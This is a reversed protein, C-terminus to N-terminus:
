MSIDWFFANKQKLGGNKVDFVPKYAATTERLEYSGNVGAMERWMAKPSLKGKCGDASIGAL